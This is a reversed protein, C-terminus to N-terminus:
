MPLPDSAHKTVYWCPHNGGQPFLSHACPVDEEPRLSDVQYEVRNAKSPIALLRIRHVSGTAAGLKPIRVRGQYWCFDGVYVVALMGLLALFLRKPTLFSPPILEATM